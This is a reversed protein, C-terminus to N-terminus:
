MPVLTAAAGGAFLNIKWDVICAEKITAFIVLVVNKFSIKFVRLINAVGRYQSQWGMQAKM